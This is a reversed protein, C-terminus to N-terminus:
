DDYDIMDTQIDSMIDQAVEKVTKGACDYCLADIFKISDGDKACFIGYIFDPDLKGQGFKFFYISDPKTITITDNECIKSRLNVDWDTSNSNIEKYLDIINM